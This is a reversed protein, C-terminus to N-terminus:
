APLSEFRFALNWLPRVLVREFLIGGAVAATALLVGAGLLPRALLGTAGLGVLFSFVIRPSTLAWIGNAVNERVAGHAAGPQAGGHGPGRGGAGRAGGHAHGPGHAHGAHHGFGHSLGSFAMTGLGVAGLGLSFLYPDM